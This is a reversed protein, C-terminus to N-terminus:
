THSIPDPASQLEAHRRREQARLLDSQMRIETRRELWNTRAGASVSARGNLVGSLAMGSYAMQNVTQGEAKRRKPIFEGLRPPYTLCFDVQRSVSAAGSPSVATYTANRVRCPPVTQAVCLPAAADALAGTAVPPARRPKDSEVAVM